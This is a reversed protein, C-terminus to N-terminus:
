KPTRYIGHNGWLEACKPELRSLSDGLYQKHIRSDMKLLMQITTTVRTWIGNLISRILLSVINLIYMSLKETILSAYRKPQMMDSCDVHLDLLPM